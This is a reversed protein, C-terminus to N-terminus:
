NSLINERDAKFNSITDALSQEGLYFLSANESLARNLQQYKPHANVEPNTTSDFLIAASEKGLTEIFKDKVTDTNYNSIQTFESRILSGEEGSVFAMFEFAKDVHASRNNINITDIAAVTTGPDVEEFTPMPAIDWEFDLRGEQKASELLAVSWSGQPMMAIHGNLFEGMFDFGAASMEATSMHSQDESYLRNYFELSRETFSLDDDTLYEGAQLAMFNPLWTVWMGGWQKDVGDGKVLNNAVEAYEDWTMETPYPMDENDFITQNYFLFYGAKWTPLAYYKDNQELLELSSGYVTLDLNSNKVYDTIEATVGMEAYQNAAYSTETFIDIDSNSSLLAKIKDSYGDNPTSHPIIEVDDHLKNFEEVAKINPKEHETLFYYHLQVKEGDGAGGQNESDNPTEGSGCGALLTMSVMLGSLGISIAKKM